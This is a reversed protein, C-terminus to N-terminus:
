QAKSGVAAQIGATTAVLAGLHSMARDTPRGRSDKSSSDSAKLDFGPTMAGCRVCKLRWTSPTRHHLWEHGCMWQSWRLDYASM